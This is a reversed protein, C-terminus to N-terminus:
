DSEKNMAQVTTRYISDLHACIAREAAEPDHNELAAVIAVHERYSIEIANQQRIAVYRYELAYDYVTNAFSALLDNKGAKYIVDHFERDAIQFGVPDDLLQAQNALLHKLRALSSKDIRIAARRLLEKEVVQRADSVTTIDYNTLGGYSPLFQQLSGQVSTVKTRAGHHIEILKRAALIELAGRVTERSVKFTAVLDRESPLASGERILGSCIMYGLKEAVQQKLTGRKVSSGSAFANGYLANLDKM